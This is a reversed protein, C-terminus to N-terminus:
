FTEFNGGRATQRIFFCVFIEKTCNKLMHVMLQKISPKKWKFKEKERARGNKNGKFTKKENLLAYL